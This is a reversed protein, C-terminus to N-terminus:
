AWVGYRSLYVVPGAERVREHFPYPDALVEPGFPDDDLVPAHM